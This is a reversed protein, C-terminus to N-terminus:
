TWAFASMCDDRVKEYGSRSKDGIAPLTGEEDGEDGVLVALGVRPGLALDEVGVAQEGSAPEEKGEDPGLVNASVGRGLKGDEELGGLEEDAVKVAGGVGGAADGDGDLAGFAGVGPGSGGGGRAAHENDRM